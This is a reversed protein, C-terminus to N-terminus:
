RTIPKARLCSILYCIVIYTFFLPSSMQKFHLFLHKISRPSASYSSCNRRITRKYIWQNKSSHGGSSSEKFLYQLQLGCYTTTPKNYAWEKENKMGWSYGFNLNSKPVLIYSIIKYLIYGRYTHGSRSQLGRNKFYPQNYFIVYFPDYLCPLPDFWGGVSSFHTWPSRNQELPSIDGRQHDTEVLTLSGESSGSFVLICPLFHFLNAWKQVLPHFNSIKPGM